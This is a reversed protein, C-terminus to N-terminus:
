RLAMPMQVLVLQLLMRVGVRVVVVMLVGVVEGPVALFRVNMSMNVRRQGVNVRVIGVRVM